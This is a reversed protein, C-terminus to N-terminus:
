SKDSTTSLARHMSVCAAWCLRCLFLLMGNSQQATLRCTCVIFADPIDSDKCVINVFRIVCREPYVCGDHLRTQLDQWDGLKHWRM